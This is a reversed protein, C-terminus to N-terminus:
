CEPTTPLFVLLGLQFGAEHSQRLFCCFVSLCVFWCVLVLWQHLLGPANTCVKVGLVRSTSDPADRKRCHTGSSDPSHLFIGIATDIQQQAKPTAQVRLPLWTEM